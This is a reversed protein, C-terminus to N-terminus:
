DINVSIDQSWFRMHFVTAGAPKTGLFEIAFGSSDVYIHKIKKECEWDRAWSRLFYVYICISSTYWFLSYQKYYNM